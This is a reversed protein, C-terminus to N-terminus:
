GKVEAMVTKIQERHGTRRGMVTLMGEVWARGHAAMLREIQMTVDLSDHLADTSHHISRSTGPRKM